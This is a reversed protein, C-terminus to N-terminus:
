GHDKGDEAREIARRVYQDCFERWEEGGQRRAQDTRGVARLADAALEVHAPCFAATVDDELAVEMVVWLAAQDGCQCCVRTLAPVEKPGVIKGQRLLAMVFKEIGGPEESM